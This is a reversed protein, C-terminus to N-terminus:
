SVEVESIELTYIREIILQAVRDGESVPIFVPLRLYRPHPGLFPGEFDKEGHNFLLIFLIGRYDPDIVGAGADIGFKAALSGDMLLPHFNEHYIGGVLAVGRPSADTHGLLLYLRFKPISLLEGRLQSLKGKRASNDMLGPDGSRNFVDADLRYLDYGAASPSSRTPIRAKPSHRKIKLKEAVPGEINSPAVSLVPSKENSMPPFIVGFESAISVPVFAWKSRSEGEFTTVSGM